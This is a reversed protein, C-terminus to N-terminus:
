IEDNEPKPIEEEVSEMKSTGNTGTGLREDKPHTMIPPGEYIFNTLLYKVGEKLKTGRHIYTLNAPFIVLKGAKPQIHGRNLFETTGGVGEEVDNLYLIYTLIRNLFGDHHWIYFGDKETKQIQPFGITANNVTKGAAFYRDLGEAEMYEQYKMLGDSVCKGTEDVVDQWDRRISPMSIPLDTSKKVNEDTGGITAGIVKRKDNEFRSIADECFEKSVANDIELIYDM